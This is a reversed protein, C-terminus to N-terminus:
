LTAFPGGAAAGLLALHELAAAAREPTIAGLAVLAAVSGEADRRNEAEPDFADIAEVLAETLRAPDSFRGLTECRPGKLVVRGGREAIVSFPCYGVDEADGIGASEDGDDDAGYRPAWAPRRYALSNLADRFGPTFTPPRPLGPRLSVVRSM